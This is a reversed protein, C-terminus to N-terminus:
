RYSSYSQIITEAIIKHGAANPHIGDQCYLSKLHGHYTDFPTTVDIIEIGTQGAIKFLARNYSEHWRSILGIDGGLWKVVNSKQQESMSKSFFSFYTDSIIPPLSIIVPKTGLEKIKGIINRFQAMFSELTTKPTHEEMPSNAIKIWDFDCDNGGYEIFTYDSTAIIDKHRQVVNDVFGITCGFKGYNDLHIDLKNSIIETFCNEILSYKNNESFIVGKTISDGLAAIRTKKM